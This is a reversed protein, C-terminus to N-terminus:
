TPTYWLFSSLKELIFLKCAVYIEFIFYFQFYSINGEEDEDAWKDWDVKIYHPTKGDGRLLKKWWCPEEKVLVCFISRMGKNIKSEKMLFFHFCFYSCSVFPSILVGIPLILHENEKELNCRVNIRSTFLVRSDKYSAVLNWGKFFLQSFKEHCVMMGSGFLKRDLINSCGFNRSLRM